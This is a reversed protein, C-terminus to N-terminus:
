DFLFELSNLLVWQLDEARQGLNGGALFGAAQLKEAITPHRSLTAVYLRDAITAPDTTAALVRAVTTAANSRHIRNLVVTPDNMLSLAQPISTDDSRGEDDRNGRGFEDMFRGYATNRVETPDPLKMASTSTLGGTINYSVPVNTAKGIADLLAEAPLRRAVHRAFYPTWAENWAGNCQTSLQYANSTVMTRIITRLDYKDAIFENTLLALLNPHTAQSDLRNIDINNTPEVLGITFLEKWLYNVTARSFQPHATLMRGYADRSAEGSRPKEGTLLFAPAYTASGNVPQRPTKNGSTTNLQYVGTPASDEVDYKANNTAMDTSRVARTTAFFASMGWFDARLKTNLYNNVLTLHGPGNHCSLCLLPMGLFKEGSQAALNDYTDQPPGNPQIPRVWFNPPGNVFADGKGSLIERVMQDYPKGSKISDHIFTYYANRGQPYERSNASVQVNQVLDGFWMTWRDIFGDSALLQDIMKTRKDASTDALFSDVTAPDPIQGTLDLTVRRLFEEDGSRPAPAIGDKQMKGFIETDIFNVSAPYVPASSKPPSVSHRRGGASVSESAVSLAHYASASRERPSRLDFPCTEKTDAALLAPVALLVVATLRHKMAPKVTM